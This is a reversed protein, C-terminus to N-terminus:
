AGCPQIIESPLAGAISASREPSDFPLDETMKLLDQLISAKQDESMFSSALLKSYVRCM